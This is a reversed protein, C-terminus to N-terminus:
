ERYTCCSCYLDDPLVHDEFEVDDRALVTEGRIIQSIGEGTLKAYAEKQTWLKYFAEVGQQDVQAQEEPTFYRSSIKQYDADTEQQIDVGVPKDHVAIALYEGTHSVSIYVPNDKIFPKGKPDRLIDSIDIGLEDLASRIYKDTLQSGKLEPFAQKYNEYIFFEM